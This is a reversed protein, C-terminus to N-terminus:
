KASFINIRGSLPPLGGNYDHNIRDQSRTCCCLGFASLLSLNFQGDGTWLASITQAGKTPGSMAHTLTLSHAISTQIRAGICHAEQLMEKQLYNSLSPVTSCPSHNTERQGDGAMRELIAKCTATACITALASQFPPGLLPGFMCWYAESIGKELVWRLLAIQWHKKRHEAEKAYILFVVAQPFM